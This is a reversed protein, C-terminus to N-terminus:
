IGYASSYKTSSLILWDVRPPSIYIKTIKSGRLLGLLDSYGVRM